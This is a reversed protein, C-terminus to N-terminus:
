RKRASRTFSRQTTSRRVDTKGCLTFLSGAAAKTKALTLRISKTRGRDQRLIGNTRHRQPRRNALTHGTERPASQAPLNRRARPVAASRAKPLKRHRRLYRKEGASPNSTNPWFIALQNGLRLLTLGSVQKVYRLMGCVTFEGRAGLDHGVKKRLGGM